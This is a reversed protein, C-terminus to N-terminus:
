KRHNTIISLIRVSRIMSAMMIMKKRKGTLPVREQKLTERKVEIVLYNRIPIILNKKFHGQWDAIELCSLLSMVM